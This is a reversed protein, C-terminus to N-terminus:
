LNTWDQSLPNSLLLLLQIWQQPPASLSNSSRLMEQLQQSHAGLYDGQILLATQLPDSDAADM